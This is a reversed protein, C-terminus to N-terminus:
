GRRQARPSKATPATGPPLYQAERLATRATDTNHIVRITVEAGPTGYVAWDDRMTMPRALDEAVAAPVPFQTPQRCLAGRWDRGTQILHRPAADIEGATYLGARNIDNTNGVAHRQRFTILPHRRWQPRLDVLLFLALDDASAQSIRRGPIM